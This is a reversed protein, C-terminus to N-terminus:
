PYTLIKHPLPPLHYHTFSNIELMNELYYKSKGLPLEAAIRRQEALTTVDGKLFSINSVTERQSRGVVTVKAGQKAAARAIASGIGATGGVIVVSKGLLLSAASSGALSAIKLGSAIGYM